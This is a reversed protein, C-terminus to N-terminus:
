RGDATRGPKRAPVVATSRPTSRATLPRPPHGRWTRILLALRKPRDQDAVVWCTAAMAMASVALLTVLAPWDLMALGTLLGGGVAATGARRLPM